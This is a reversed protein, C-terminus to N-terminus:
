PIHIHPYISLGIRVNHRSSYTCCTFNFMIDHHVHRTIEFRTNKYFLLAVKVPIHFPQTNYYSVQFLPLFFFLICQFCLSIIPPSPSACRTQIYSEFDACPVSSYEWTRTLGCFWVKLWALTEEFLFAAGVCRWPKICLLHWIACYTQISITGMPVKSVLM